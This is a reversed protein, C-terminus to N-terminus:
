LNGMCYIFYASIDNSIYSVIDWIIQLKYNAVTINDKLDSNLDKKNNYTEESTNVVLYTKVLASVACYPILSLFKQVM